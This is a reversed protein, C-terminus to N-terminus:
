KRRAKPDSSCIVAIHDGLDMIDGWQQQVRRPTTDILPVNYWNRRLTGNENVVGWIRPLKKPQKRKAMEIAQREGSSLVRVKHREHPLALKRKTTMPNSRNQCQLNASGVHKATTPAITMVRKLCAAYIHGSAAYAAAM